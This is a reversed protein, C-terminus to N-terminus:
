VLLCNLIPQGDAKSLFTPCTMFNKPYKSNLAYAPWRSTKKRSQGSKKLQGSNKEQLNGNNKLNQKMDRTKVSKRKFQGANQVFFDSLGELAPRPVNALFLPFILGLIACISL